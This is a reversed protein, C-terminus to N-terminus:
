KRPPRIPPINRIAINERLLDNNIYERFDDSIYKGLRQWVEDNDSLYELVTVDAVNVVTEDGDRWMKEAAACYKETLEPKNNERLLRALPRALENAYFVHEALEGYCEIHELYAQRKEPFCELFYEIYKEKDMM